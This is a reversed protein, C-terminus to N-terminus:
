RPYTQGSTTMRTCVKQFRASWSCPTKTADGPSRVHRIRLGEVDIFLPAGLDTMTAM